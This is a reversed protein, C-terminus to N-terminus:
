LASMTSTPRCRLAFRAPVATDHRSDSASTKAAFLVEEDVRGAVDLQRVKSEGRTREVRALDLMELM